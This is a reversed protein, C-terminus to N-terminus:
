ATIEQPGLIVDAESTCRCTEMSWGEFIEAYIEAVYESVTSCARLIRDACEQCVASNHPDTDDTVYCFDTTIEEGCEQCRPLIKVHIFKSRYNKRM